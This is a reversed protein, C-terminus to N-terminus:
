REVADGSRRSDRRRSAPFIDTDRNIGDDSCNESLGSKGMGTVVVKGQCNLIMEVARSFSGDIRSRLALVADAEIQLVRKATEIM